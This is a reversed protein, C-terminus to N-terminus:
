CDDESDEDEEALSALSFQSDFPSVSDLDSVYDSDASPHHAICREKLGWVHVPPTQEIEGELMRWSAEGVRLEDVTASGLFVDQFEKAIGLVKDMAPGSGDGGSFRLITSHVIDNVFPEAFEYGGELEAAKSLCARVHDRKANIDIDCVGVMVLGTGVAIVSHYRVGFSEDIGLLDEVSRGYFADARRGNAPPYSPFGLLQMLTWHLKGQRVCPRGHPTDMADPSPEEEFVVFDPDDGFESILRSMLRHGAASWRMRPFASLALCRRPDAHPAHACINTDPKFGGELIGKLNRQRMEEYIGHMESTWPYEALDDGDSSSGAYSEDSGSTPWCSEPKM